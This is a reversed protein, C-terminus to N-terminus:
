LKGARGGGGAVGRTSSAACLLLPRESDGADAWRPQAAQRIADERAQLYKTLGMAGGPHEMTDPMKGGSGPGDSPWVLPPCGEYPQRWLLVPIWRKITSRSRAQWQPASFSQPVELSRSWRRVRRTERTPIMVRTGVTVARTVIVTRTKKRIKPIRRRNRAKNLLNPKPRSGGTEERLCNSALPSSPCLAPSRTLRWGTTGPRAESHLTSFRPLFSEMLQACLILSFNDVSMKSVKWRRCQGAKVFADDHSRVKEDEDAFGSDDLSGGTGGGSSERRKKPLISNIADETEESSIQRKRKSGQVAPQNQTSKSDMDYILKDEQQQVQVSQLLCSTSTTCSTSLQPSVLTPGRGNSPHFPACNFCYQFPVRNEGDSHRYNRADCDCDTEDIFGEDGNSAQKCPMPDSQVPQIAIPKALLGTPEPLSSIVASAPSDSSVTTASVSPSTPITPSATSVINGVYEKSYEKSALSRLEQGGTNDSDDEVDSESDEEYDETDPTDEEEMEEHDEQSFQGCAMLRYNMYMTEQMYVDRAKNLVTAVLLNKHLSLGGRGARGMQLKNLSLGILRQVETLSSM